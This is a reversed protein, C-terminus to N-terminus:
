AGETFLPGLRLRARAIRCSEDEIEAGIYSRGINRAAVLTSGSGAFPDFVIGGTPTKTLKCLYEMLALPKVTAHTNGEGREAASAKACYFFRSAGGTDEHGRPGRVRAHKPFVGNHYARDPQAQRYSAASEGSQEDLMVGAEEDLIVNAPWRGQAHPPMQNGHQYEGYVHRRDAVGSNGPHDYDGHGAAIRGGDINLGAVGRTLANNAFTGDTPKMAVIIPEWAPKLATGWGNWLEAAATAPATIPHHRQWEYADDSFTGGHVKNCAGHPSTGLIEREAGAAKDIAKSIDLSKPFGSGYLWMMCDRIEWGADEIAVALRHYTRTGGFALLITGPKAVRLAARWYAVGPVCGDWGKGMFELGYPPDTIITDVCDAEMGAMVDLCDGCVICGESEGNVVAAIDPHLSM